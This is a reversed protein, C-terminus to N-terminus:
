ILTSSILLNPSVLSGSPLGDEYGYQELIRQKRGEKTEIIDPEETLKAHFWTALRAGFGAMPFIIIASQINQPLHGFLAITLTIPDGQGLDASGAAAVALPLIVRTYIAAGIILAVVSFALFASQFAYSVYGIGFGLIVALFIWIM